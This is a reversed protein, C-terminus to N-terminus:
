RGPRPRPSVIIQVLDVGPSASTLTSGCLPAFEGALFTRPYLEYKQSAPGFPFCSLRSCRLDHVVLAATVTKKAGM